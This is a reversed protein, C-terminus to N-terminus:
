ECNCQPVDHYFTLAYSNQTIIHSTNIEYTAKCGKTQQGTITFTIQPAKYAM